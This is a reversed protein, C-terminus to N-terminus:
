RCAPDKESDLHFPPPDGVGSDQHCLACNEQYLQRAHEFLVTDIGQQAVAAPAIVFTLGLVGVVLKSTLPERGNEHHPRSDPGSMPM